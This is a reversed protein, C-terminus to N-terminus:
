WTMAVVALAESRHFNQSKSLGQGYLVGLLYSLLGVGMFYAATEWHRDYLALLLPPVFAFCFSRLLQWVVGLVLRIRM